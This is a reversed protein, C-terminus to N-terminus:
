LTTANSCVPMALFRTVTKKSPDDWYRVMIAFYKKIYKDNGGDCLITFPNTACAHVVDATVVPALAHSIISRTKTRGCSFKDAVKSDPFMKKCLKTFHDATSFSLNHEAVFFTFYVEAKAVQDQLSETQSSSAMASAISPQSLVARLLQTHKVSGIHRKIDHLEGGGISLDSSCLTCFVYSAVKKSPALHYKRWSEQWKSAVHRSTSCARKPNPVSM